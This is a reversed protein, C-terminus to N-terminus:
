FIDYIMISRSVLETRTLVNKKPPTGNESSRTFEPKSKKKSESRILLRISKVIIHTHSKKQRYVNKEWHFYHKKGLPFLAEIKLKLM